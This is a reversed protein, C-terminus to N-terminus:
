REQRITRHRNTGLKTMSCWLHCWSYCCGQVYIWTLIQPWVPFSVEVYARWGIHSLSVYKIFFFSFLFPLYILIQIHLDLLCVGFVFVIQCAHIRKKEMLIIFNTTQLKAFHSFFSLSFTNEEWRELRESRRAVQKLIFHGYANVEMLNWKMGVSEEMEEQSDREEENRKWAKCSSM